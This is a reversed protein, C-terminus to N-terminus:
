SGFISSVYELVNKIKERNDKEDPKKMEISVWKDYGSNKLIECLVRHLDKRKASVIELFPESIHFHNLVDMGEEIVSPNENNIVITGTDVHLKFGKSNVDRVLKIAEKTTNIFNTGYEVPNAEICFNTGRSHAYDGIERFFCVASGYEENLSNIIRNKPSGFVLTGTGTISAFDVAKKLYNKLLDKQEDTGFLKM